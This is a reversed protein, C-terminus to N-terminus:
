RHKDLHARAIKDFHELISEQKVRKEFKRKPSNEVRVRDRWSHVPIPAPQERPMNAHTEVPFTFNIDEDFPDVRLRSLPPFLRLDRRKRPSIDVRLRRGSAAAVM